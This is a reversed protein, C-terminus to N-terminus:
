LGLKIFQLNNNLQQMQSIQNISQLLQYSSAREVAEANRKAVETQRIKENILKDQNIKERKDKNLKDIEAFKEKIKIRLNINYDSNDCIKKYETNDIFTVSVSDKCITLMYQKIAINASKEATKAKEVNKIIESKVALMKEIYGVPLTVLRKVKNKYGTMEYHNKSGDRLIELMYGINNGDKDKMSIREIVDDFESNNKFFVYSFNPYKKIYTDHKSFPSNIFFTSYDNSRDFYGTGFTVNFVLKDDTITKLVVYGNNVDGTISAGNLNYTHLFYKPEKKEGKYLAIANMNELTNREFERGLGDAYGNKCKGDWYIKHTDNLQNNNKRKTFVKCSEKKNDPQVWKVVSKEVSKNLKIQEYEALLKNEFSVANYESIIPLPAPRPTSSCGSLLVLALTLTTAVIHIANFKQILFM